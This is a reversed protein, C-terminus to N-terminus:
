RGRTDVTGNRNTCKICDDYVRLEDTDVSKKIIQIFFSRGPLLRGRFLGGAGDRTLVAEGWAFKRELYFFSQRWNRVATEKESM